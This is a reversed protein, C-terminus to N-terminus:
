LFYVFYCISQYLCFKQHLCFTKNVLQDKNTEVLYNYYNIIQKSRKKQENEVIEVHLCIFFNM